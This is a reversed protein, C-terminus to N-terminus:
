RQVKGLESFNIGKRSIFADRVDEREPMAVLEFEEALQFPVDKMSHVAGDAKGEILAIEIEKTFLGKGGIKNLTVDLRKDGETVVLLKESDINQQEKLLEM